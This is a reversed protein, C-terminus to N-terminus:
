AGIDKGDDDGARWGREADATVTLRQGAMGLAPTVICAQSRRGGCGAVAHPRLEVVLEREVETHAKGDDRGDVTRAGADSEGEAQEAIQPERAGLCSHGRGCSAEAQGGLIAQAPDKGAEDAHGPGM